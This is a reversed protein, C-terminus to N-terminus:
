PNNKVWYDIEEPTFYIRRKAKLQKKNLWQYVWFRYEKLGEAHGLKLAAEDTQREYRAHFKSDIAYRVAFRELALLNMQIYDRIHSIEHILIAEIAKKTPSCEFVKENVQVGYTRKLPSRFVTTTKICTQFFYSDSRLVEMKLDIDKLDPFYNHKIQSIADRLEARSIQVSCDNQSWATSVLLYSLFVLLKM